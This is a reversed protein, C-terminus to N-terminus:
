KVLKDLKQNIEELITAISKGKDTLFMRSLVFYLPDAELLETTSCEDDDDGGAQSSVDSASDSDSAPLKDNTEAVEEGSGDSSEVSTAHSSVDSDTDSTDSADSTDSDPKLSIESESETDDSDGGNLQIIKLDENSSM